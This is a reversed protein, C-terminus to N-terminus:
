TKKKMPARGDFAADIIADRQLIRKIAERFFGPDDIWSGDALKRQLRMRNELPFSLSLWKDFESCLVVDSPTEYCSDYYFWDMRASEIQCRTVDYALAWDAIPLVEIEDPRYYDVLAHNQIKVTGDALIDVVLGDISRELGKILKRGHVMDGISFNV